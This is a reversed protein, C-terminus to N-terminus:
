KYFRRFLYVGIMIVLVCFLFWCRYNRKRTLKKQHSIQVIENESVNLEKRRSDELNGQRLLVSGRDRCGKVYIKSRIKEGNEKHFNLSTDYEIKVAEWYTCDSAIIQLDDQFFSYNSDTRTDTVVRESVIDTIENKKMSGCASVFLLVSLLFVFQWVIASVVAFEFIIMGRRM